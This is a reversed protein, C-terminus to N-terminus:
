RRVRAAEVADARAWAELAIRIAEQMRGRWEADTLRQRDRRSSLFGLELLLSPMDPAKLVSFAAAQIPKAHLRIGGEDMAAVLAEALRDARPQTEARALEILVSAILDDAGGLDIGAL